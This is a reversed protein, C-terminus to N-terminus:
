FLYAALGVLGAAGYIMNQNAGGEFAAVGALSSNSASYSSLLTSQQTITLEVGTSATVTPTTTEDVYIIEESSSSPVESVEPVKVAPSVTEECITTYLTEVGNVTTTVVTESTTAVDAVCDPHGSCSTITVETTHNDTVTEIETSAAQALSVVALLSLTRFQM